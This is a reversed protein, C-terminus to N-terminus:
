KKEILFVLTGAPCTVVGTGALQDNRIGVIDGAGLNLLSVISATSENHGSAIRQYSNAGYFPRPTGNVMLRLAANNRANNTSTQHQFVSVKYVGAKVVTVGNTAVVFSTVENTIFTLPNTDIWSFSTTGGNINGSLLNTVQIFPRATDAGSPGKINLKLLWIGSEKIYLDGNLTNLYEDGNNGLTNIPPSIGNLRNYTPIKSPVRFWAVAKGGANAGAASVTRFNVNDGASFSIPSTLTNVTSGVTGLGSTGGTAVGNKYVEVEAAGDFLAIGVAFLECDVPLPVGFAAQSDDGNGYAWEFSNTNLGGSEEAWIPFVIGNVSDLKLNVIGEVESTDLNIKAVKGHALGIYYNQNLTDLYLDGENAIALSDIKTISDVSFFQGFSYNSILNVLFLLGLISKKHFCNATLKTIYKRIDLIM